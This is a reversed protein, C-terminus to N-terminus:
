GVQDLIMKPFFIAGLPGQQRTGFQGKHPLKICISLTILLAHLTIENCLVM